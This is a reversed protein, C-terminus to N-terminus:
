PEVTPRSRPASPRELPRLLGAALAGAGGLAAVVFVIDRWVMRMVFERGPTARRGKMIGVRVPEPKLPNGIVRKARPTLRIGHPRSGRPHSFLGPICEILSPGRQLRSPGTLRM